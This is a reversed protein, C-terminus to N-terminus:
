TSQSTFITSNRRAQASSRGSSRIWTPVSRTGPDALLADLEDAVSLPESEDDYNGLAANGGTQYALVLDLIMGRAIAGAQEAADTASWDVDNRFRNMSLAPLKVKCSGPRCTRLDSLDAKPLRMPELDEPRPPTSFRGIQPVGPGREFSEIDRFREIFREAPADIYV